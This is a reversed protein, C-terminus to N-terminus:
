LLFVLFQIHKIRHYLQFYKKRDPKGNKIIYQKNYEKVINRCEQSCFVKEQETIEFTKNCWNCKKNMTKRM